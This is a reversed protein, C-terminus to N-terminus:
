GQMTLYGENIQFGMDDRTTKGRASDAFGPLAVDRDCLAEASSQIVAEIVIKRVLLMHISVIGVPWNKIRM